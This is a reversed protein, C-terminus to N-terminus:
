LSKPIYFKILESIKENDELVKKREEDKAIREKTWNVLFTLDTSDVFYLDTNIVRSSTLVNNHADICISVPVVKHSIIYYYHDRGSDVKANFDDPSTKLANIFKKSAEFKNM